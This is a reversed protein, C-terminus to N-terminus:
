APPNLWLGHSPSAPVETETEMWIRNLETRRRPEAFACTGGSATTSWAGTLAGYRLCKEIPWGKLYGHLFGANFSDGAGIADVVEVPFASVSWSSDGAYASAGRSGRKVVLVPVQSRLIEIAKETDTEGTIRSVERENPMLVDVYRIADLIGRDWSDAPDDNPDLSVTLGHSKLESFLKPIDETLREQLYYSAMHLHRSRCLYPMDLDTRRLAHTVGPYTLMRRAGEHQLLVTVGTAGDTIRVSASNEVGAARLADVCLEAFSDEGQACVFGVSSGLAAMNCATIAASGGIQLAMGSALLERELPLAEPLGYLVLDLNCDGVIAIDFRGANATM